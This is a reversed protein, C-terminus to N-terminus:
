SNKNEFTVAHILFNDINKMSISIKPKRPKGDSNKGQNYMDVYKFNYKNIELIYYSKLIVEYKMKNSYSLPDNKGQVRNWFKTVINGNDKDMETDHNCVIYYINGKQVLDRITEYDNGLVGGSTESHTKLDGYSNIRSFYLDLDIGSNTKDQEYRIIDFLHHDAIYNDMLYELYFGAWESQFKNRYNSNIMEKYCEIGLWDKSISSFFEDFTNVVEFKSDIEKNTFKYKYFELIKDPTFVTIINGKFDRKQFLGQELGKQLDITYVHASSNHLNNNTYNSTDFDCFLITDKYKYLGLLITKVNADLNDLYVNKFNSPIQIRKKFIPHPNGLYSINKFYINFDVNNYRGYINNNRFSINPFKEQIIKSIEKKDLIEGYDIVIEGNKLIQEVKKISAKM